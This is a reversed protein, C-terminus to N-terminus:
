KGAPLTIEAGDVPHPSRRGSADAAGLEMRTCSLGTVRGNETLVRVPQTLFRFEIGEKKVFEVEHPYATMEEATRRYVMTVQEAGRRTAVPAWVRAAKGGGIVAGWGVSYMGGSSMKSREMSDMGDM